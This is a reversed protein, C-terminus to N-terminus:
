RIHPVVRREYRDRVSDSASCRPGGGNSGPNDSGLLPTNHFPAPRVLQTFLFQRWTRAPAVATSVTLRKRSIADNSARIIPQDRTSSLPDVIYITPYTKEPQSHYSYPLAVSIRYEQDVHKSMITRIETAIITAKSYGTM